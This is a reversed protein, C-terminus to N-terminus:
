TSRSVKTQQQLKAVGVTQTDGILVYQTIPLKSTKLPKVWRLNSSPEVPPLSAGKAMLGGSSIGSLTAKVNSVDVACFEFKRRGLMVVNTLFKLEM